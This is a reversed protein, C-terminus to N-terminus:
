LLMIVSQFIGVNKVDSTLFTPIKWLTIICRYFVMRLASGFVYSVPFSRKVVLCFLGSFSPEYSQFVFFNSCKSFTLFDWKKTFFGVKKKKCIRSDMPKQYPCSCFWHATNRLIFICFITNRLQGAKVVACEILKAKMFFWNKVFIM